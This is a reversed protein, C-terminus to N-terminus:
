KNMPMALYFFTKDGVGKIILAKNLGNFSLSLSDADVSQFCDFINKYNFSIQIDEGTLAASLNTTNEGVDNNKTKIELTKM